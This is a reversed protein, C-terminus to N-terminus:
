EIILTSYNRKMFTYERFVSLIRMCEDRYMEGAIQNLRSRTGNGEASIRSVSNIPKRPNINYSDLLEVKLFKLNQEVNKQVRKKLVLLSKKDESYICKKNLCKIINEFESEWAIRYTDQYTRLTAMSNNDNNLEPLFYSDIPNDYVEETLPKPTVALKPKVSEVAETVNAPKSQNCASLSVAVIIIVVIRVHVNKVTIWGKTFYLEIRDAM